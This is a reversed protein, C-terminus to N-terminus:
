EIVMTLPDLERRIMALRDPDQREALALTARCPFLMGNVFNSGCGVLLLMACRSTILVVANCANESTMVAHCIAENTLFSGFEGSFFVCCEICRRDIIIISVCHVASLM